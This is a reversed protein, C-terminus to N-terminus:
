TSGVALSEPRGEILTIVVNPDIRFYETWRPHVRYAILVMKLADELIEVRPHQYVAVLNMEPDYEGRLAHIRSLPNKSVGIKVAPLGDRSPTVAVYLFKDSRVTEDIFIEM